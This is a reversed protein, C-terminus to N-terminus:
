TLFSCPIETYYNLSKIEDKRPTKRLDFMLILDFPLLMKLDGAIMIQRYFTNVKMAGATEFELPFSGRNRGPFIQNKSSLVTEEM